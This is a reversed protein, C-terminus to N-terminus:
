ASLHQHVASLVEDITFPKRIVGEYPCGALQATLVDTPMATVFIVPVDKTRPDAKLRRCVEIGSMGPMMVDLLVLQPPDALADRLAQGDVGTAVQYGEDRLLDTLVGAIYLDDEVVLVPGAAEENKMGRGLALAM